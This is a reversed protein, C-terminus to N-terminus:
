YTSMMVLLDEKSKTKSEDDDDDDFKQHIQDFFDKCMKLFDQIFEFIFYINM